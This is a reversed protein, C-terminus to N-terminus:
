GVKDLDFIYVKKIELVTVALTFIHLLCKYIKVYAMPHHLQSFVIM